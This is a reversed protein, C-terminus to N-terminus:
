KEKTGHFITQNEAITKETYDLVINDFENGKGFLFSIEIPLVIIKMGWQQLKNMHLHLRAADKETTVIAKEAGKNDYVAKIKELDSDAFYHHDPYSLVTVDKAIEQLYRVLPAPKAICCVLIANIKKLNEPQKTFFNYADLYGIASFFVRQHALPKISREMELAVEPRMDAPCKSVIIINARRYAAKHERLTGAPLLYDKYFPKSYDTILINLGAKVPRHQYADDLLVLQVEPREQLLRPIGTVREEAVSVAIGKYKLHYQMPEDGIDRASTNEDALLFGKTKRKYGRSMTATHFRSSLLRILYEVHPTKGTGGVSLNGVCILPIAFTASSLIGKDYLWSRISTIAGYLMAFPYLLFRLVSIMKYSMEKHSM